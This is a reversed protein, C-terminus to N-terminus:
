DPVPTNPLRVALQITTGKGPSCQWTLKGGMDEARRQMNKLGHQNGEAKPTVPVFGM